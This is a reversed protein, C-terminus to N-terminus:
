QRTGDHDDSGSTKRSSRLEYATILHATASGVYIALFWILVLKLAIAVSAAQIALALVLFGLGLNDAKTPAHIRSLTDPFRLVGLTGALFFVASVFLLAVTAVTALIETM